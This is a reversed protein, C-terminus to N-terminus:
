KLDGFFKEMRSLKWEIQKRGGCYEMSCEFGLRSDADVLPLTAKANAYEERAIDHLLKKNGAEWALAGRKLNIATKVTRGLYEGLVAMKAAKFKQRGSLGQAMAKFREAGDMFSKALPEMLELELPVVEPYYMREGWLEETFNLHCIGIGYAAHEPSPFESNEIRKGGFEFPYAPGIRFSGYQHGISPPHNAGKESWDRWIKVAEDANREGFDRAAILRIHRDFPLGGEIYSEKALESVFNPYWGYHHSEMLGSLGWDANAKVLANWRKAWLHPYPEYPATGFDWTHGGTNSMTFLEMGRKSARQAEKSFNKGPGPCVVTYDSIALEHGNAFKVREPMEFTSLLITKDIPLKDILEMRAPATEPTWDKSWNYTWFVVKMEPAHRAIARKVCNLWDPYDYCPFWGPAPRKDGRAKKVEYPDSCARNDKSPFACSEGVLILGKAEPYARAIEGYTDDFVKQAGPDDPHVYAKVSTYLYVDIGHAAARRIIANIDEFAACSKTKGVKKVYVLLSDYGFHIMRRMYNEPVLDMGWGSHVMRTSFRARRLSSGKPLYPARRLSMMDELHYLAQAAAREDFATVMVGKDTTEIRSTRAGVSKDIVIKLAGEGSRVSVAAGIGMSVLLYEAFDRSANELVETRDAPLSIVAGDRIEFENQAPRVAEDRLGREHVRELEARFEYQREAYLSVVPLIAAALFSLKSM